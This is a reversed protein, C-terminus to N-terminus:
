VHPVSAQNCHGARPPSPIPAGVVRAQETSQSGTFRPNAEGQRLNAPHPGLADLEGSHCGLKQRLELETSPRERRLSLDLLRDGLLLREQRRQRIRLLRNLPASFSKSFLVSAFCAFCPTM